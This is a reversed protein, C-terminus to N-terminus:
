GHDTAEQIAGDIALAIMISLLLLVVWGAFAPWRRARRAVNARHGLTNLATVVLFAFVASAAGRGIWNDRGM